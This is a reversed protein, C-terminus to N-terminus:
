MRKQKLAETCVPCVIRGHPCCIRKFVFLYVFMHVLHGAIYSIAAEKYESLREIHPVEIDAIYAICFVMNVLVFTPRQASRESFSPTQLPPVLARTAVSAKPPVAGDRERMLGKEAVCRPARWNTYTSQYLETSTFGRLARRM